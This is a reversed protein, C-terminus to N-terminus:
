SKAKEKRAKRKAALNKRKELERQKYNAFAAGAGKALISCAKESPTAGVSLWHAVREENLEMVKSDDEEVPNYWGLNEVHRGDRPSRTDAVVLRYFPRNTRGQRRLRIKLAM